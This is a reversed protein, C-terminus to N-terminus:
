PLRAPPEPTARGRIVDIVTRAREGTGAVWCLHLRAGNPAEPLQENVTVGCSLRFPTVTVASVVRPTEIPESGSLPGWAACLNGTVETFGHHSLHVTLDLAGDPNTTMDQGPAAPSIDLVFVTEAHSDAPDLNATDKPKRDFTLIGAQEHEIDYLETYVAGSFGEHRRLEQTQWRMAWAREVSTLGVGYESNLNPRGTGSQHNAM